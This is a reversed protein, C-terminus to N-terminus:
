ARRGDFSVVSSAEIGFVPAGARIQEQRYSPALHGYHLEVMRTDTHGLNQAVVLLPVGAMVALSAWTHRLVHFNVPPDIKARKSANAILRAQHSRGWPNGDARKFMIGTGTRGACVSKFFAVAEPTLYAHHLRTHGTGKKTRTTLTGVDPNFDATVLAALQGYRAGTLLAAQMLIRFDPDCANILRQSEAITLYRVSAENVAKFPKVKRWAKDSEIKNGPANFVHNLAAHLTSWTRNASVRRKRPDSKKRYRQPAGAKTRVRPPANSLDNRWGLLIEDTLASVELHGLRPQIFATYRWRADESSRGENELWEFYSVMVGDVTLPGTKGAAVRAREVMRRRAAEQAQWYDLIAVGDADSFDDATGLREVEYDRGGLYHRALWTGAGAKRRRYGLHLGPEISRFYPKGQPRLKGRATRTDLTSDKVKRAM